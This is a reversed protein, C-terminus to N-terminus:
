SEQPTDGGLLQQLAAFPSEPVDGHGDCPETNLDTGCTPCLGRCDPRCLPRNPIALAVEDHVVPEVDIWGGSEIPLEDDADDPHVRYVAEIPVDLGESWETLCRTCTLDVTARARGRAIVGDTMSRLDVDVGAEDDVVANPLEVLVPLAAEENRSTGPHALLDSVQFRLSM